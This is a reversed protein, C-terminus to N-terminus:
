GQSFGNFVNNLCSLAALDYRALTTHFTYITIKGVQRDYYIFYNLLGPRILSPSTERSLRM